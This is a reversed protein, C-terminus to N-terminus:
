LQFGQKLILKDIRSIVSNLHKENQPEIDVSLTYYWEIGVVGKIALLKSEFREVEKDLSDFDPKTQFLVTVKIIRSDM